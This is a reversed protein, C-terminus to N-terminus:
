NIEIYRSSKNKNSVQTEVEVDNGDSDSLYSNLSSSDSSLVDSNKKILQKINEDNSLAHILELSINDTNLNNLSEIIQEQNFESKQEKKQEKKQRSLIDIFSALSANPKDNDNDNDNDNNIDELLEHLAEPGMKLEDIDSNKPVDLVIVNNNGIKNDNDNDNYLGFLKLDNVVKDRLNKDNINLDYGRLYDVIYKFVEPDRDIYFLSQLRNVVVRDDTSSGNMIKTLLSDPYNNLTKKALIFKRDDVFFTLLDKPLSMYNICM